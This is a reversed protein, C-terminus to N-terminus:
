FSTGGLCFFRGLFKRGITMLSGTWLTLVLRFHARLLMFGGQVSAISRRVFTCMNLSVVQTHLVQQTEMNKGEM